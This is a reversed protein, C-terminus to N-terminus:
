GGGGSGVNGPAASVDLQRGPRAGVSPLSDTDVTSGLSYSGSRTWGRPCTGNPPLRITGQYGRIPGLGVWLLDSM